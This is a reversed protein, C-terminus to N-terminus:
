RARKARPSEPACCASSSAAPPWYCSPARSFPSTLDRLAELVQESRKEQVVTIIITIAVFALLMLAEGLDGLALYIVGAAVLLQFMPERGVEIVIRLLTRREAQPLENPGDRRLRVAAEHDSLGASATEASAAIM